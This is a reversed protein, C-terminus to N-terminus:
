QSVEVDLRLVGSAILRDFHEAIRGPVGGGVVLLGLEMNLELAHETLNASSVMAARGDFVACKAHLTGHNGKSDMQRHDIPWRYIEPGGAGMMIAAAPDFGVKGGGKAATELVFRVRVGRGLARGIAERVRDIRYAAFSVVLIDTEASEILEYLVQDTRRVPLGSSSPGTWLVEIQSTQMGAGAAFHATRLAIALAEGTVEAASRWLDRLTVRLERGRPTAGAVQLHSPIFGSPPRGRYGCGFAM